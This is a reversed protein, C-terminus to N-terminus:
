RRRRDWIEPNHIGHPMEGKASAIIQEVVMVSSVAQAEHTSGAVHPTLVVNKLKEFRDDEPPELLRVDLGAGAIQGSTLAEYLADEDVLAGRATNILVATPKMLALREANMLSVNDGPAHLTVFDARRFVEEMTDVLEINWKECFARDPYPEYAVVKMEFGYARQAVGRGIRGLGIVGLTKQWVDRGLPRSWTLSRAVADLEVVRRSVALMLAWAHDAVAWHNSGQTTTVVVGNDSAAPVDVTEYGVGWRAVHKLTDCRELVSRTYRENSSAIVADFGQVLEVVEEEDPRGGPWRHTKVDFGADRLPQFRPDDDGRSGPATVLVRPM